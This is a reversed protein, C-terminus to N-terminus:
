RGDTRITGDENNTGSKGNTGNGWGGDSSGPYPTDPIKRNVDANQNKAPDIYPKVTKHASSMNMSNTTNMGMRNGSYAHKITRHMAVAHTTKHMTKHHMAVTHTTKHMGIKAYTHHMTHHAPKHYSYAHHTTATHHYVTTPTASTTAPMTSNMNANDKRGEIVDIKQGQDGQKMNNGNYGGTGTQAKAGFHITGLVTLLILIKKM